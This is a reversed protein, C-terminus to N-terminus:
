KRRMPRSLAVIFRQIDIMKSLSRTMSIRVSWSSRGSKYDSMAGPLCREAPDDFAAACGTPGVKPSPRRNPVRGGGPKTGMSRGEAALRMRAERPDIDLPRYIEVRDGPQLARDGAVPQGWVGLRCAAVDHGPFRDVIGSQQVAEAATTGASVTMAILEQREPLAFVVEIRFQRAQGM